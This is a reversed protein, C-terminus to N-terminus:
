RYRARSGTFVTKLWAAFWFHADSILPIAM